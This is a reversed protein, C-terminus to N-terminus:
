KKDTDPDYYEERHIMLVADADQEM